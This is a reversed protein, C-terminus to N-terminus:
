FFVIGLSTSLQDDRSPLRLPNRNAKIITTPNHAVDPQYNYRFEGSLSNMTAARDARTTGRNVSEAASQISQDESTGTALPNVPPPISM